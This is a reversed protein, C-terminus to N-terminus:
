VIAPHRAVIGPELHRELPNRLQTVLEPAVDVHGAAVDLQILSQLFRTSNRVEELESLQHTEVGEVAGFRAASMEPLLALCRVSFRKSVVGIERVYGRPLVGALALARNEVLVREDELVHLQRL